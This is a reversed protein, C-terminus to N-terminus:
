MSNPAVTAVDRQVEPVDQGGCIGRTGGHCYLADSHAGQLGRINGAQTTTSACADHTHESVRSRGGAGAFLLDGLGLPFSHTVGTLV